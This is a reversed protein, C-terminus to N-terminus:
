ILAKAYRSRQTTPHFTTSYDKPVVQPAVYQKEGAVTRLQEVFGRNPNVVPRRRKLYEFIQGLTPPEGGTAKARATENKLLFYAVISSSRSIGAACHVLVTGGGRMASRIFKYSPELVSYLQQSPIDELGLKLYNYRGSYYNPLETTANVIHSINNGKLWGADSAESMSGLYLGETIKSM